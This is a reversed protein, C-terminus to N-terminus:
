QKYISKTNLMEGNSLLAATYFGSPYNTLDLTLQSTDGSIPHEVMLNSGYYGILMLSANETGNLKYDIVINGIAPNPSIGEIRGPRINVKVDCYDKFKDSDAIVELRYVSNGNAMLSLDKGVFLLVGEENYWNYKAPEGIDLANLEINENLDVFHDGGADASFATRLPKRIDCTVFGVVEDTLSSRQVVHYQYRDKETIEGALFNFSLKLVGSKLADFSISDLLVNNGSVIKKQDIITEFMNQKRKGGAEWAEFLATDMTMTVEAEEYIPKGSETPEVYMEVRYSNTQSDMNSIVLSVDPEIEGPDELVVVVSKAAINNNNRVNTISNQIEPVAMLDTASNIKAYLLSQFWTDTCTMSTSLPDPVIWAIQVVTEEGPELAPITQTGILVQQSNIVPMIFARALATSTDFIYNAPRSYYLNVQEGINSTHCSRNKVRVYVYNPTNQFKPTQHHQNTFGDPQRRSWIDPSNTVNVAISPETGNDGIYDRIFLDLVPIALQQAALVSAHADVLGHGMVQHWSGNIRNPVNNYNYTGVKQATTELINIVQNGTLCPNASLMLAVTGAVHPAAFSTGLWSYTNNGPYTSLIDSGPAVLDVEPGAGSYGSPMLSRDATQTIGGVVVIDPNTYAPYHVVNSNGSAWVVITGKGGRGHNIANSIANELLIDHMNSFSNDSDGWSCNIVDAGNSVAWNIGDALQAGYGIPNGTLSHAVNMVKSQPAVGAVQLNNDKEAAIIGAVFTAHNMWFMGFNTSTPFQANYRLPHMNADLDSHFKDVADDVIAVTVGAGESIQWADCANIDIGPNISNLLGWLEDFNEDNACSHSNNSNTNSANSGNPAITRFNFMFAPDVDEFLGTEYIQNSLEVSTYLSSKRSSMLYWLPMTPIHQIISVDKVMAIRELIHLDATDKLKVYFMSSTGISVGSPREYFFAVVQINPAQKLSNVVQYFQTDNPTITFRLKSFHRKSKTSNDEESSIIELGLSSIFNSELLQLSSVNLLSKDITINM